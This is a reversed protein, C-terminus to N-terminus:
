NKIPHAQQGIQRYLAVLLIEYNQVIISSPEKHDKLPLMNFMCCIHKDQPITIYM